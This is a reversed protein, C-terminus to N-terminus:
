GTVTRAYSGAGNSAVQPLDGFLTGLTVGDDISPARFNADMNVHYFHRRGRREVRLMNARRLAGIAGWVSRQTLSLEDAIQDVSCGPHAAIHFLVIGRSSWIYWGNEHIQNAM